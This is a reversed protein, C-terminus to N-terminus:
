NLVNSEAFQQQKTTNAGNDKKKEKKRGGGVSFGGTFSVLFSILYIVSMGVLELKICLTIYIYIEKKKKATFRLM